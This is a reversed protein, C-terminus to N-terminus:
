VAMQPSQCKQVPKEGKCTKSRTKNGVTLPGAFSEELSRIVRSSWVMNAGGGARIRLACFLVKVLPLGLPEQPGEVGVLNLTREAKMAGPQTIPLSLSSRRCLIDTTQKKRVCSWFLAAISKDEASGQFVTEGFHACDISCVTSQQMQVSSGLKDSM